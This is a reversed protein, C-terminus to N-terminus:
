QELLRKQGVGEKAAEVTNEAKDATGVVNEKFREELEQAKETQRLNSWANAIRHEAQERKEHWDTEQINRVMKEIESNWRDKLEEVLGAKRLEYAPPEPASPLPEVVSNLLIHSQRLLTGQINRNAKHLYITLYLVSYTLTM